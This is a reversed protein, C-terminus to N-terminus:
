WDIPNGEYDQFQPSDRQFGSLIRAIGRASEETSVPAQHGGMDTRVWGPHVLLLKFDDEGLLFHLRRGLMNVAAKSVCYAIMAGSDTRGISGVYSSVIAIKRVGSGLMLPQFARVIRLPGIVNVDLTCQMDDDSIEQLMTIEGVKTPNVGANCILVDIVREAQRLDRAVAEVATRCTVDITVVDLAGPFRSKLTNVEESPTRVSGIVAVGQSLYRQALALGIGRSIGAIFVTTM